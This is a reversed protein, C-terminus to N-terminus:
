GKLFSVLRVVLGEPMDADVSRLDSDHRVQRPMQAIAGALSSLRKDHAGALHPMKQVVTASSVRGALRRSIGEWAGAIERCIRSTETEDSEATEMKRMDGGIDLGIVSRRRTDERRARGGWRSPTEVIAGSVLSIVVM